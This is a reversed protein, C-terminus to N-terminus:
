MKKETLETPFAIKQGAAMILSPIITSICHGSVWDFHQFDDTRIAGDSAYPRLFYM